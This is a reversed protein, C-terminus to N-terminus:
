TLGEHNALCFSLIDHFTEPRRGGKITNEVYKPKDEDAIHNTKFWFSKQSVIFTICNLRLAASAHTPNDEVIIIPNIKKFVHMKKAKLPLYVIEKFRIEPFINRLNEERLQMTKEDIGCATVLYIEWDHKQAQELNPYVNQHLAELKGFGESKNFEAVLANATIDDDLMIEVADSGFIGSLSDTYESFGKNYDLITDDVDYIIRRNKM